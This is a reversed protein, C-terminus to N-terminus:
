NKDFVTASPLDDLFMRYGYNERILKFINYIEYDGWDTDCIV